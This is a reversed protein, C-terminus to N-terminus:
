RSEEETKNGAIKSTQDVFMAKGRALIKGNEDEIWACLYKIRSSSKEEDMEGVVMIDEHIPVPERFKVELKATVAFLGKKMLVHAMAEDLLTTVIGGHAIGPYGQYKPKLVTETWARNISYSFDLQLGDPNEQGCGFCQQPNELKM